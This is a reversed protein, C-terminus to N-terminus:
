RRDCSETLRNFFRGSSCHVVGSQDGGTPYAASPEPYGASAGYSPYGGYSAQPYGQAPPQVVVQVNNVPAQAYGYGGYGGYGAYGYGPYGYGGYGYAPYGYGGYGYVPYGYGAYGWYPYGYSGIMSGVLAGGLFGGWGWGWGGGGGRHHAEARGSLVALGLGVVCVARVFRIM